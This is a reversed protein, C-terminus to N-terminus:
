NAVINVLKNPVAIVKRVQKGDLHRQVDKNELATKELEERSLDAPVILKSRVKGNIQFVVEIENEVLATEDYTPWAVYSISEKEGLREWLEEALHPAIPALLQVFGKIYDYCLAEQKNAANVFVMLQSIATNFSLKEFDESVKKVTENYVKDLKGDNVTTIRERM